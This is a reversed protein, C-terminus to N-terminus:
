LPVEIVPIAVEYSGVTPGHKPEYPPGPPPPTTEESRPVGTSVPSEQRDICVDKSDM